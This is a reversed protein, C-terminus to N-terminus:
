GVLKGLNVGGVVLWVSMGAVIDKLEREMETVIIESEMRVEM